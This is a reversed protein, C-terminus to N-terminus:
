HSIARSNSNAQFWSERQCFPLAAHGLHFALTAPHDGPWNMQQVVSSGRTLTTHLAFLTRYKTCNCVNRLHQLSSIRRINTETHHTMYYKNLSVSSGSPIFPKLSHEFHFNIFSPIHSKLNERRRTHHESGDEPNYQRTFHNDVSTESTRVAEMMLSSSSGQHHLCYM